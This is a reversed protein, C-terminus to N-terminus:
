FIWHFFFRTWIEYMHINWLRKSNYSIIGKKDFGFRVWSNVRSSFREEVLWCFLTMWDFSRIPVFFSLNGRYKTRWSRVFFSSLLFLLPLFLKGSLYITDRHGFRKDLSFTRFDQFCVNCNAAFRFCLLFFHFFFLTVTKYLIQWASISSGFHYFIIM